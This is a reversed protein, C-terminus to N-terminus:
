ASTNRYNEIHRRTVVGIVPKIMPATTRTVCCAESQTKDLLDQLQM